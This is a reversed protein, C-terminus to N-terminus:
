RDLNELDRQHDRPVWSVLANEVMWPSPIQEGGPMRGAAGPDWGGCSRERLRPRRKQRYQLQSGTMLRDAEMIEQGALLRPETQAPSPDGALGPVSPRSARPDSSCRNGPSRRATEAVASCQPRPSPSTSHPRESSSTMGPGCLILQNAISAPRRPSSHPM